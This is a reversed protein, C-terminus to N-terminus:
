DIDDDGNARAIQANIMVLEPDDIARAVQALKADKAGAPNFPHPTDDDSHTSGNGSDDPSDSGDESDGEV